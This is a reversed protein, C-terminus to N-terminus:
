DKKGIFINYDPHGEKKHENEYANYYTAKGIKIFYDTRYERPKVWVGGVRIRNGKGIFLNFDPRKDGEIKGSNRYGNYFKEGKLKLFLRIDDGEPKFWMGGVQKLKIDKKINEM